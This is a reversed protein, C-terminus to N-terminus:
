SSGKHDAKPNQSLFSLPAPRGAFPSPHFGGLAPTPPFSICESCPLSIQAPFSSQGLDHAGADSIHSPPLFLFSHGELVPNSSFSPRVVLCPPCLCLLVSTADGGWFFFILLGSSIRSLALAKPSHPPLPSGGWRVLFIPCLPYGFSPNSCDHVSLLSPPSHLQRTSFPLPSLLQNRTRKGM